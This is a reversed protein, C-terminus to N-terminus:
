QATQSTVHDGFFAATVGLGGLGDPLPARDSSTIDPASPASGPHEGYQDSGRGRDGDQQERDPGYGVADEDILIRCVGLLRSVGSGEVVCARGRRINRRSCRSDGVLGHAGGGGAFGLLGAINPVQAASEAARQQEAQRKEHRHLHPGQPVGRRGLSAQGKDDHGQRHKEPQGM